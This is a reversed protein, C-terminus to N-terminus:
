PKEYRQSVPRKFPKIGDPMAWEAFNEATQEIERPQWAASLRDEDAFYEVAGGCPNKFYWFYASSVPHRGPGLEIEWGKRAFAM